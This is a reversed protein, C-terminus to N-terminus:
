RNRIRILQGRLEDLCFAAGVGARVLAPSSITVLPRIEGTPSLSHALRHIVEGRLRGMAALHGSIGVSPLTKGAM